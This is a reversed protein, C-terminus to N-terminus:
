HFCQHMKCTKQMVQLSIIQPPCKQEMIPVITWVPILILIRTLIRQLTFAKSFNYDGLVYFYIYNILVLVGSQIFTFIFMEIQSLSCLM